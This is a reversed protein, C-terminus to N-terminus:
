PLGCDCSLSAHNSTPIVSKFFGEEFLIRSTYINYDSNLVGLQFFDDATFM